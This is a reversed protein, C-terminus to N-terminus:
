KESSEGFINLMATTVGEKDFFFSSTHRAEEVILLQKNLSPCSLFMKESMMYPILFDKKGHIFLVPLNLKKVADIPNVESFFFGSNIKNILSCINLFPFAPLHMRSKLVYKFESNLNAYGCDAVVATLNEIEGRASALLVAATGMSIGHLYIKRDGYKEKILACWDCIDRSSYQGFDMYKGESAGHARHDPMIIDFGQKLYFPVYISFALTGTSGYGHSLVALKGRNEKSRIYTAKLKLGDFSTMTLQETNLESLHAEAERQKNLIDRRAESIYGNKNVLISHGRKATTIYLLLSFTTCLFIIAFIAILVIFYWHM